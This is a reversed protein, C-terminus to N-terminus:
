YPVETTNPKPTAPALPQKWAEPIREGCRHEALVTVGPKPPNGTIRYANRHRVGWQRIQYTRRGNRLAEVEGAPSLPWPDLHVTIACAWHDLAAMILEGCRHNGLRHRVANVPYLPRKTGQEREGDGRYPPVPSWLAAQLSRFPSRHSRGERNPPVFAPVVPVLDNERRVTREGSV